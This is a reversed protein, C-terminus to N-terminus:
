GAMILPEDALSKRLAAKVIESAPQGYRRVREVTEALEDNFRAVEGAMNKIYPEDRYARKIFPPLKPCGIAIDIWERKGVWLGGQCQAVHEAPFTGRMIKDILVHAFASKVELLGDNGVLADPSAGAKLDTDEIFGVRVPDSDTLLAYRDRIEDEQRKGRDMNANSYNDMPEGTLIEGALKLMYTKRTKGEGKAMVTAFESATPKGARAAFWEPTGQEMDHIILTV